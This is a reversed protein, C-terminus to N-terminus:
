FGDLHSIPSQFSRNPIHILHEGSNCARIHSRSRSAVADSFLFFMYNKSDRRDAGVKQRTGGSCRSGRLRKREKGMVGRGKVRV